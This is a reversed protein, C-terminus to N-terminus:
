RGRRFRKLLRKPVKANAAYTRPAAEGRVTVTLAARLVKARGAAKKQRPTLRIVWRRAKGPRLNFDLVRKLVPGAMALQGTCGTAGKACALRVVARGRADIRLTGATLPVKGLATRPKPKRKAKAKAKPKGAGSGGDEGFPESTASAAGAANRATVAVRLSGIFM